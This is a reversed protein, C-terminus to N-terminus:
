THCVRDECNLRGSAMKMISMAKSTGQFIEYKEKNFSFFVNPKESLGQGERM